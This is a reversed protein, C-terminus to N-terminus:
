NLSIGMMSCLMENIENVFETGQDHIFVSAVGKECLMKFLVNVVTAAKKDQIQVAETWKTFYCSATLLYKHGSKTTQLSHSRGKKNIFKWLWRNFLNALENLQSNIVVLWLYKLAWEISNSLIALMITKVIFINIIFLKNSLLEHQVIKM